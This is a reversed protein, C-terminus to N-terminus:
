QKKPKKKLGALGLAKGVQKAVMIAWYLQLASFLSVLVSVAYLASVPIFKRKEEDWHTAAEIFNPFVDTMGVRTFYLGRMLLFAVAFLIRCIENITELWKNNSNNMYEYWYKNKPHFLDVIVLPISSLEIVGFFFCGYYPSVPVGSSFLGMTIGSIIVFGIHHGLMLGDRLQHVLLSVPLDWFLQMGFAIKTVLLGPEFDDLLIGETTTPYYSAPSFFWGQFGLYTLYVMLVLAVIGHATFGPCQKWPRNCNDGDDGSPLVHAFLLYLLCQAGLCALGAGLVTSDELVMGAVGDM